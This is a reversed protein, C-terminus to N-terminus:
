EKFIYVKFKPSIYSSRWTKPNQLFHDEMYYDSKPGEKM